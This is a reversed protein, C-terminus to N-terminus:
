SIWGWINDLTRGAYWRIRGLTGPREISRDAVLPVQAVV